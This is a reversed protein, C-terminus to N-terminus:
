WGKKACCYENGILINDHPTFTINYNLHKLIKKMTYIHMLSEEREYLVLIVRAKKYSMSWEVIEKSIPKFISRIKDQEEIPFLKVKRSAKAKKIFLDQLYQFCDLGFKNCFISLTTRTLQNYAISRKFAKVNADVNRGCSFEMKVDVKENHIGSNIATLFNGEIKLYERIKKIIEKHEGISNKFLTEVNQGIYANRNNM